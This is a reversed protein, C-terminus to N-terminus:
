ASEFLATAEAIPAGADVLPRCVMVHRPSAVGLVGTVRGGRHYLVTFKAEDLSGAVHLIEDTAAPRGLMQIKRGHQDSWFYPVLSVAPAAPRGALLSAAAHSALQATVEWHEIRVDDTGIARRWSFRAIDGVAVVSDAAFLAEDTVVGDAITLGSGELWETAPQVGIGIVVADAALREGTALEVAPTSGDTRGHVHAVAVGTRVEIGARRHLETLWGGVEDGVVPGLPVDLAELITVALGKAHATSAVESGIFGGGIVVVRGTGGLADLEDRLAISQAITRVVHVGKAGETGPLWRPSAGTALVVADAHLSRGDALHVTRAAADLSSAPVGLEVDIGREELSEASALQIREEDWAGALLQKTLPPRDYPLRSEAGLMTISGRFGGARLGEASRLGGLGSGVVLVSGDLDLPGTRRAASM